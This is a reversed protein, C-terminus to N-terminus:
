HPVPLSFWNQLQCIKFCQRKLHQLIQKFPGQCSIKSRWKKAWILDGPARIWPRFPNLIYIWIQALFQFLFSGCLILSACFSKWTTNICHPLKKLFISFSRRLILVLRFDKRATNIICLLKKLKSKRCSNLNINSIREPWLDLGLTPCDCM